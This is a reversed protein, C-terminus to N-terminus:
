VGIRPERRFDRQFLCGCRFLLDAAAVIAAGQVPNGVRRLIQQGRPAYCGGPAGLGVFVLHQVVVRRHNLIQTAGARHAEAESSPAVFFGHFVDHQVHPDDEPEPAITAAPRAAKAMPVSVHPDIM